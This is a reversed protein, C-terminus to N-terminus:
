SYNMNVLSGDMERQIPQTVTEHCSGYHSVAFSIAARPLTTPEPVISYVMLERTRNGNIYIYKEILWIM